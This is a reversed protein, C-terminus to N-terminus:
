LLTTAKKSLKGITHWMGEAVLYIPNIGSKKQNPTLSARRKAM